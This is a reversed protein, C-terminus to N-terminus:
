DDGQMCDWMDCLRELREIPDDLQLLYQKQTLDIPLLEALRGSVWVADDYYPTQEAHMGGLREILDRLLPVAREYRSPITTPRSEDLLEVEAIILHSPRVESARTRFRQEGRVTIGLLGDDRQDWDVIRVLTGVDYPTAAEGVEKGSLILSVGFGTQGKMCSSIMEMYRPEFIRLPLTGGPFLVTNLPFLPIRLCTTM